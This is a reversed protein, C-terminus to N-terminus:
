FSITQGGDIIVCSGTIFSARESSLFLVLDSVENPLGFRNLPVKSKLIAAVNEPNEKMKIDWTGGEFWINGPAVVNVRVNPALKHSLSKAFSNIAAKAVSYDTPAGIFEVGAISSIFLMSGKTKVLLDSFIRACNLASLFNTEWVRQWTLKDSIPAAQSKGSGVNAILIDITHDANKLIDTYTKFLETENTVDGQYFFVSDRFTNKLEDFSKAINRAIIHVQAGQELFGIAISLGIGKSGGAIVVKKNSLYLNL